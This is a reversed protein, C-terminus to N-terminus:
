VIKAVKMTKNNIWEELEHFRETERTATELSIKLLEQYSIVDIFQENGRLVKKFKSLKGSKVNEAMTMGPSDVYVIIFRPTLGRKKSVESCVVLNRMWQYWPGAFPCPQYEDTSNFNLIQPIVSWYRIGKGLSRM